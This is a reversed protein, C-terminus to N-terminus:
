SQFAFNFSLINSVSIFKKHIKQVQETAIETHMVDRRAIEENSEDEPEEDEM